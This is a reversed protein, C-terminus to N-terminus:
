YNKKELFKFIIRLDNKLNKNKIESFLRNIHDNKFGMKISVIINYFFLLFKISKFYRFFGQKKKILKKKTPFFIKSKFYIKELKKKNKTKKNLANFLKLADKKFQIKELMNEHDSRENISNQSHYQHLLFIKNVKKIRGSIFNISDQYYDYFDINSFNIVRKHIYSYNKLLVKTRFIYHWSNEMTSMYKKLRQFEKQKDNSKSTMMRGFNIPHGHYENFTYYKKFLDFNLAYGGCAVYNKNKELFNLAPNISSIIPFDDDSFLVVYKSKIKKLSFYIKKQLVKYNKDYPYKKYVYDIKGNKLHSILEKSIKMKSGDAIFLKYKFKIISLYKFFRLTFNRRDRTLLLFTLDKNSSQKM